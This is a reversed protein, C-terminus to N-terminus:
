SSQKLPDPKTLMSPIDDTSTTHYGIKHTQALNSEGIKLVGSSIKVEDILRLLQTLDMQTGSTLGMEM